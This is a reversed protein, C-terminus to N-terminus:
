FHCKRLPEPSKERGRRGHIPNSPRKIFQLHRADTMDAFLDKTSRPSEM